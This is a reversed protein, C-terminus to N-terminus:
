KGGRMSLEKSYQTEVINKYPKLKQIEEKLTTNEQVTEEILYLIRKSIKKAASRIEDQVIFLIQEPLRNKYRVTMKREPKKWKSKDWKPISNVTLLINNKKALM